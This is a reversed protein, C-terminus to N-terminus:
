NDEVMGIVATKNHLEVSNDGMSSIEGFTLVGIPSHHTQGQDQTIEKLEVQSYSRGMNEVTLKRGFCDMMIVRKNEIGPPFNNKSELYAQKAASSLAQCREEDSEGKMRLICARTGVPIEASFQLSKDAGFSLPTRDIYITEGNHERILGLPYRVALNFFEHPNKIQDLLVNGRKDFSTIFKIYRDFAPLGNLREVFCGNTQTIEFKTGEIPEWGHKVGLSSALQTFVLVAGNQIIRQPTFVTFQSTQVLSRGTMGGIVHLPRKQVIHNLGNILHLNNEGFGDGFVFLTKFHNRLLKDRIPALGKEIQPLISDATINELVLIHVDSKFGALISGRDMITETDFVGPFVGGFLQVGNRFATSLALDIAFKYRGSTDLCGEAQLLMITNFGDAALQSINKGLDAFSRDPNVIIKM